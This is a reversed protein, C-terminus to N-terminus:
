CVLLLHCKDFIYYMCLLIYYAVVAHWSIALLDIFIHSVVIVAHVMGCACCAVIAFLMLAGIKKKKKYFACM